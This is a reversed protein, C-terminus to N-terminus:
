EDEFGEEKAQQNDILDMQEEAEAILATLSNYLVGIDKSTKVDEMYANLATVCDNFISQGEETFPM